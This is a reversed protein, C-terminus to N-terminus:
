KLLRTWDEVGDSKDYSHSNAAEMIQYYGWYGEAVDPFQRLSATHDDVYDRDRICMKVTIMSNHAATRTRQFLWIYRGISANASNMSRDPRHIRSSEFIVVMPPPM